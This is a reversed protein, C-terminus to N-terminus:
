MLQRTFYVFELANTLSSEDLNAGAGHGGESLEYFLYPDGLGSLKAAFKRAHQPGVRDDKTTTWIFPEPYTVGPRLQEYPSISMLFARQTPDNVSGYEGVWSSGAAIKEYRMLDLLPVQMDVAKWMEPHQTFEVGM